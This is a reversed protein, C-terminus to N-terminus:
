SSRPTIEDESRLPNQHPLLPVWEVMRMSHNEFIIQIVRNSKKQCIQKTKDQSRTLFYLNRM